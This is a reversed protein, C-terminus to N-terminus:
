AGRGARPELNFGFKAALKKLLDLQAKAGLNDVAVAVNEVNVSKRSQKMAHEVQELAELPKEVQSFDIVLISKHQGESLIKSVEAPIGANELERALDDFPCSKRVSSLMGVQVIGEHGETADRLQNAYSEASGSENHFAIRTDRFAQIQHRAANELWRGDLARKVLEDVKKAIEEADASHDFKTSPKPM